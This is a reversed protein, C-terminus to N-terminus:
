EDFRLVCPLNYYLNTCTWLITVNELSYPTYRENPDMFKCELHLSNITKVLILNETFNLM